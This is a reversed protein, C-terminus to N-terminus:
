GMIECMLVLFWKERFFRARPGGVFIYIYIYMYIKKERERERETKGEIEREREREKPCLLALLMGVSSM